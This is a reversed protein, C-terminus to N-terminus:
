INCKPKLKMFFLHIDGTLKAFVHAIYIEAFM